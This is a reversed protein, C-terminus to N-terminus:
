KIQEVAPEVAEDYKWNIGFNDICYRKTFRKGNFSVTANFEDGNEMLGIYYNVMSVVEQSSAAPFYSPRTYALVLGHTKLMKQLDKLLNRLYTEMRIPNADSKDNWYFAGLSDIAVLSVKLSDTLTLEIELMIRDWEGSSFCKFILLNKMSAHIIEQVNETVAHLDETDMSTSVTMKHHLIHKELIPLFSFVHFNASLDIFFIAAGKGGHEVPIIAKAIFELLLISKGVNSEGSIEIIETPYPGCHLIIDPALKCLPPRFSSNIRSMLQVGTETIVENENM